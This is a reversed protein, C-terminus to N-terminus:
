GRAAREHAAWWDEFSREISFQRMHRAAAVGMARRRPEDRVLAVIAEVWYRVDAAPLVLGTRGELVMERPGGVDSVLAALGCSQSEMVVQGLTDTASPFVFLDASAYIRALEEGFRYGTFVADRGRLAHRMAELWPGGGVVILQAEVVERVRRWAEVLMPLNKEISVRGVYLVKVAHPRVGPIGDWVSPDRRDPSFLAIDIGPRLPLVRESSVGVRELARAYEGSRAFVGDFRSYFARMAATAAAGLRPSNFLREVYAPFDTHYVGLVPVGLRRASWLGVLGVPGPTSVHVVRPALRRAARLMRGVPPLVLALEPYRPLPLAALPPFNLINPENPCPKRTSTLVTLHLGRDRAQRALSRVFRAPGNVDAVTDSFLAVRM